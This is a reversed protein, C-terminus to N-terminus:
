DSSGSWKALRRQWLYGTWGGSVVAALFLRPQYAVLFGLLQNVALCFLGVIGRSEPLLQVPSVDAPAVGMNPEAWWELERLQQQPSPRSHFLSTSPAQDLLAADIENDPNSAVNPDSASPAITGSALQIQTAGTASSQRHDSLSSAPNLETTSSGRHALQQLVGGVAAGALVLVALTVFFGVGEFKIWGASILFTGGAAAIALPLTHLLVRIFADGGGLFSHALTTVQLRLAELTGDFGRLLMLVGVLVVISPM